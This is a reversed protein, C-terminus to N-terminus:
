RGVGASGSGCAVVFYMSFFIRLPVAFEAEVLGMDLLFVAEQFVVM